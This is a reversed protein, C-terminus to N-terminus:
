LKSLTGEINAQKCEIHAGKLFCADNKCYRCTGMKVGKKYKYISDSSDPKIM